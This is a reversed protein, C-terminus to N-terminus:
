MEEFRHMVYVFRVSCLESPMRFRFFEILPTYRLWAPFVLNLISAMRSNAAPLLTFRTSSHFSTERAIM